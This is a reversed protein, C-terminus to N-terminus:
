SLDISCTRLNLNRLFQPLEKVKIGMKQPSSHLKLNIQNAPPLGSSKHAQETELQYRCTSPRNEEVKTHCIQKRRIRM